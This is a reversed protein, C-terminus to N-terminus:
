PVEVGPLDVNWLESFVSRLTNVGSKGDIPFSEGQMYVANFMTRMDSIEIWKMYLDQDSAARASHDSQIIIVADPDSDIIMKVLNKIVKTTYIYQDRYYEQNKWDYYHSSDIENGNKDFVFPEHPLFLYGFCFVNKEYQVVNKVDEQLKSIMGAFSAKRGTVLPYLVTQKMYLDKATEGGITLGITGKVEFEMIQEDIGMNNAVGLGRLTYGQEKALTFLLPTKKLEMKKSTSDDDTVVYDLNMYNTTITITKHSENRSLSSYNFNHDILFTIFESIDYDYYDKMVKESSFEDFIFYYINPLNVNTSSKEAIEIDRKNFTNAVIRQISPLASITNIILLGLFVFTIVNTIDQIFQRNTQKEFFLYVLLYLGLCILPVIHWYKLFPFLNEFLISIYAYNSFVIMFLNTTLAGSAVSKLLVSFLVMLGIGILVSCLIILFYSSFQIEEVNRLYLFLPFYGSILVVSLISTKNKMVGCGGDLM